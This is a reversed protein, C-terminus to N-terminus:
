PSLFKCARCSRSSVFVMTGGEGALARLEERSNVPVVEGTPVTAVGSGGGGGVAKGNGEETGGARKQSM